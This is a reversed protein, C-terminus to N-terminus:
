HAVTSVGPTRAILIKMELLEVLSEARARLNQQELLAQKELPEFDLYQALANVLDEDPMASPIKLDAPQLHRVTSKSQSAIQAQRGEAPERHGTRTSARLDREISPALLGELKSRQLRIVARDEAAPEREALPEVAARRYSRHYDEELIRFRDIGRLVINYRGDPLQEVHTMVGTCGIAYVPPQKEYDHEWGPQLLVMGILRDNAVADAVMERYRKEFIHLPLFVNPFLVVNPLPFLPIFDSMNLM